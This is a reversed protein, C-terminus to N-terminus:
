RAQSALSLYVEEVRSALRDWTFHDAIRQRAAQGMREARPRDKLLSLIAESMAADDGPSILLGTEQHVVYTEHEGVRHAIVPLGAAMVDALRTPCKARNLRSARAPFLAVEAKACLSPLVTYPLFGQWRVRATPLGAEMLLQALRVEGRLAGGAVILTAEPLRHHVGAWIDVLQAPPFEIFRTLLLAAPPNNAYQSRRPWDALDVGNPVHTIQRAGLMRAQVALWRSAVTLADAHRLGWTEQWAFLWRVLMPYGARDIWGGSGEWDDADLVLRGRWLGQRRVLYLALTVFGSFAIPKFVHVVEPRAALIERLLRATMLGSNGLRVNVVRVGRDEWAQGSDAPSDWPPVILTVRHGRRALARGLPLARRWMTGRTRLGFPGVMAVRM